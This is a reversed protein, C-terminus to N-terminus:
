GGLRSRQDFRLESVGALQAAGGGACAENHPRLVDVTM